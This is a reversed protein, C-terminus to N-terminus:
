ACAVFSANYLPLFTSIQSFCWVISTFLLHSIIVRM